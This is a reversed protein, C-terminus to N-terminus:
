PFIPAFFFSYSLLSYLLSSSLLTSYLLFALFQCPLALCSLMLMTYKQVCVCVRYLVTGARLRGLEFSLLSAM